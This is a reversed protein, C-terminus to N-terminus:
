GAWDRGHPHILAKVDQKARLSAFAREWEELGYHNTIMPDLGFM